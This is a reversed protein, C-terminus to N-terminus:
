LVTNGYKQVVTNRYKKWTYMQKASYQMQHKGPTGQEMNKGGDSINDGILGLYDRM